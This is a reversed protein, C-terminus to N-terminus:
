AGDSQGRGESMEFLATRLFVRGDGVGLALAERRLDYAIVGAHAQRERPDPELARAVIDHIGAPLMPAIVPPRVVGDRVLELVDRTDLEPPFRPGFLMEHMLVGLSFVDSRADGRAGRAVEPSLHVVRTRLDSETRRIGSSVLDGTERRGFDGVKVEGHWSLLVQRASLDHHTMAARAGALGEAVECAIFLAQELPLRRRSDQWRALFAALSMGEILEQVIYPINGVVFCDTVQVVNPHIVTAARRVARGIEDFDVGGSVVRVAVPRAMVEGGVRQELRAIHVAGQCGRGLCAGMVLRREGRHVIVPIPKALAVM